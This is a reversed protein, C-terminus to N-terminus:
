QRRGRQQTDGIQDGSKTSRPTFKRPDRSAPTQSKAPDDARDSEWHLGSGGTGVLIVRDRLAHPKAATAGQRELLERLLDAEATKMLPLEEAKGGGESVYIRGAKSWILLDGFAKASQQPVIAGDRGAHLDGGTDAKAGVLSVAGLGLLLAIRSPLRLWDRMSSLMKDAEVSGSKLSGM